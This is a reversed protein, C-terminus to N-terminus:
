LEDFENTIQYQPYLIVREGQWHIIWFSTAENWVSGDEGNWYKLEEIDNLSECIDSVMILKSLEEFTSM